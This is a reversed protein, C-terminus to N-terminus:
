FVVLRAGGGENAEVLDGAVEDVNVLANVNGEEGGHEGAM